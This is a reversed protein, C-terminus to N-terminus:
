AKSKCLLLKPPCQSAIKDGKYAGPVLKYIHACHFSIYNRFINILFYDPLCYPFIFILFIVITGLLIIESNQGMKRLSLTWIWHRIGPFWLNVWQPQRINLKKKWMTFINFCVYLMTCFECHLLFSLELLLYILSVEVPSLSSVITFWEFPHLQQFRSAPFEVGQPFSEIFEEECFLVGALDNM